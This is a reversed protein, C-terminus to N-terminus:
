GMKKLVARCYAPIDAAMLIGSVIVVQKAGAALVEELNELKIGGICFGPISVKAQVAQILERGVPVYDPKTPTAFIPGIGIYDAGELEAAIAQDLGHTSRGVLQGPNLRARIEEIKGDDQGIHVGHANTERAVEPFDNVIYLVDQNRCLKSLHHSLDLIEEAKKGKARLQIVGVGGEIMQGAIQLADRSGVYGLDLIGYLHVKQLRQHVESM